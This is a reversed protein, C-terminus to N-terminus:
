NLGKHKQMIFLDQNEVQMNCVGTKKEADETKIM